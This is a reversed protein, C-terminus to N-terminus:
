DGCILREIAIYGLNTSKLAVDAELCRKLRRKLRETDTGASKLYLGTKYEHMKLKKAIESASMGESALIAVALMDSMTRSVSALVAIPEERRLKSGALAELARPKDGALVANALEFAEESLDPSATERIMDATVSSAGHAKAYATIKACEGTLTFMDQGAIAILTEAADYDPTLGAALFHREVWRRLQAGGKKAFEVPTLVEALKKYLASPKNKSPTGFDAEDGDVSVIFVTEAYAKAREFVDLYADLVKDKWSGVKASRLYVFNVDSMMPMSSLADDLAEPTTEIGDLTVRSFEDCVAEGCSAAYRAKVLEEDGWFLYGGRLKAPDALLRKFETDTMIINAPSRGAGPLPCQGRCGM